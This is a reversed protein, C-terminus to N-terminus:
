GKYQGVAWRPDDTFFGDIGAAEAQQRESLSNVVWSHIQWGQKRARQVLSESTIALRPHIASIKLFSDFFRFPVLTFLPEAVIWARKLHPHHRQLAKLYSLSFSSFLLREPPLIDQSLEGILKTADNTLDPQSKLELIMQCREFPKALELVETLTPMTHGAFAPGFHRGVDLNSIESFTKEHVYGTADTLVSLNNGHTVVPIKDKTLLIDFEIGDVGLELARRIAALTNEPAEKSAGRHAFIKM